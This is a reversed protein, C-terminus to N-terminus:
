EEGSPQNKMIMDVYEDFTISPDSNGAADIGAKTYPNLQWKDHTSNMMAFYPRHSVRYGSYDLSKESITQSDVFYYRDFEETLSPLIKVGSLRVYWPCDKLTLIHYLIRLKHKLREDNKSEAAQYLPNEGITRDTSRGIVEKAWGGALAVYCRFVMEKVKINKYLKKHTTGGEDDYELALDYKGFRKARYYVRFVEDISPFGSKAREFDNDFRKVAASIKRKAAEALWLKTNSDDKKIFDNEPNYLYRHKGRHYIKCTLTYVGGVSDVCGCSNIKRIFLNEGEKYENKNM